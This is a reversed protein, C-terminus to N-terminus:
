SECSLLVEVESVSRDPMLFMLATGLEKGCTKAYHRETNTFPTAKHLHMKIAKSEISQVTRGLKDALDTVPIKAYNNYLVDLEEYTWPKSQMM